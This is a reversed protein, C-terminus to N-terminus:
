KGNRVNFAWCRCLPQTSSVTTLLLAEKPTMFALGAEAIRDILVQPMDTFVTSDGQRDMAPLLMEVSTRNVHCKLAKANKHCKRRATRAKSDKFPNINGHLRQIESLARALLSPISLEKLSTLLTSFKILYCLSSRSSAKHHPNTRRQGSPM